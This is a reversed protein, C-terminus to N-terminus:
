VGGLLTKPKSKIARKARKAQAAEETAKDADTVGGAGLNAKDAAQTGLNLPPAKPGAKKTIVAPGATKNFISDIASQSTNNLTPKPARTSTPAVSEEEGGGGKSKTIGVAKGVPRIVAKEVAKLGKGIPRIVAKEAAKLVPKAVKNVVAKVPDVVKVVKEVAKGVKKIFKKLGV